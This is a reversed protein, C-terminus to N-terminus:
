EHSGVVHDLSAASTQKQCLAFMATASLPYRIACVESFTQQQGLAFM